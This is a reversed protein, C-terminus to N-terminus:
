HLIQGHLIGVDNRGLLCWVGNGGAVSHEVHLCEALKSRESFQHSLRGDGDGFVQRPFGGVTHRDDHLSHLPSHVWICNGLFRMQDVANQTVFRLQDVCYDGAGTGDHTPEM